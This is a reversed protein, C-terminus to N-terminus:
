SKTPAPATNIDRVVYAYEIVAGGKNKWHEFDWQESKSKPLPNWIGPQDWYPMVVRWHSPESAQAKLAAVRKVMDPFDDGGVIARVEALYSMACRENARTEALQDDREVLEKFLQDYKFQVREITDCLASIDRM